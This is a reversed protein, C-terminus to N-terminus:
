SAREGVKLSTSSCVVIMLFVKLTKCDNRGIEFSAKGALNLLKFFNFKFLLILEIM